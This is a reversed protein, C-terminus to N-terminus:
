YSPLRDSLLGIQYGPYLMTQACHSIANLLHDLGSTPIRREHM